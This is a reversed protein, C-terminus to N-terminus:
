FLWLLESFSRLQLLWVVQNWSKDIFNCFDLCVFTWILFSGSVSGCLWNCKLFPAFIIWHLFSVRKMLPACVAFLCMFFHMMLILSICTFVRSVVVCSHSCGFGQFHILGLGPLPPAAPSTAGGVLICFLAAGESCARVICGLSGERPKQGGSIFCTRVFVQM